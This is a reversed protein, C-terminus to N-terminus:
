TREEKRGDVVGANQKPLCYSLDVNKKTKKTKEFHLFIRVTFTIMM